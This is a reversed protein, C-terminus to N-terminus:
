PAPPPAPAVTPAPLSPPSPLVPGPPVSPVTPSAAPIVSTVDPGSVPQLSVLQAASPVSCFFRVYLTHDFVGTNYAILQWAGSTLQDTLDFSLREDDAVIFTGANLPVIQLGGSGLQFGVEGRPGPPIRVEIREVVRAPMGMPTKATATKATGATVTVVFEYVESAM